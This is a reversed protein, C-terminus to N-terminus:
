ATGFSITSFSINERNRTDSFSEALASSAIYTRFIYNLSNYLTDLTSNNYVVYNTDYNDLEHESPSNSSPINGNYIRITHFAASPFEKKLTEIEAYYRLDHLIAIKPADEKIKTAVYKAFYNQGYKAKQELSHYILYERLSKPGLTSHVISRKGEQTDCLERPVQYKKSVEDKVLDGFGYIVTKGYILCQEYIYQAATTKGHGSYGVFAILIM